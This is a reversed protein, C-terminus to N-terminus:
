PVAAGPLRSLLHDVFRAPLVLDLGVVWIRPAADAGASWRALKVADKETTVVERTGPPWPASDYAHHDRLPLREIQLGAAQLAAFFREPVAVGAMALLPRGQLAQLPTPETRADALWIALPWAGSLRRQMCDGPWPTTAHDHNYVVLTRTDPAPALPERLPGAPLLLGNGVGREDFVVLELDRRLQRHQLGEDAVILAVLPHQALLRRAAAVRDRGVVVPVGTRRHILLPEDGVQAVDSTATIESIGDGVRGYGRSVVGPRRGAARLAQVVAITTPTKGAGGVVLNGVVLVPCHPQLRRLSARRQRYRSVSLVGRYLLALPRLLTAPLSISPRFWQALLWARWDHRGPGLPDAAATM